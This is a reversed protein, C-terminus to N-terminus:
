EEPAGYSASQMETLRSYTRAYEMLMHGRRYLNMVPEAASIVLQIRADYFVDVMNVFLCITDKAGAPIVPINSVLVHRYRNAIEIYDQQSRPVTCLDAFDAWFVQQTARIVQLQRGNIEVPDTHVAEQGSLMQFINEMAKDAAPGLPTFFIGAKEAHRLRYDMTSALHIVETQQKLLHIAPLFREHQLGNRYLEDPPVNSTTVLTVGESVLAAFLGGLLMADTIDSVQLEDLCIVRAQCALDAAVAQLPNKKGQYQRLEAHVLAMFRHFHMRLKQPFSLCRFFTDMMFTKGTGPQGWLYVGEASQKKRFRGLLGRGSAHASELLLFLRDFHAMVRVQAPDPRIVSSEIEKQLFASPKM